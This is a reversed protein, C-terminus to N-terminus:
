ASGAAGPKWDAWAQTLKQIDRAETRWASTSDSAVRSDYLKKQSM